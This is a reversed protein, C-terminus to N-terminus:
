AHAPTSLFITSLTFFMKQCPRGGCSDLAGALPECNTHMEKYPRTGLGEGRVPGNEEHSPQTM